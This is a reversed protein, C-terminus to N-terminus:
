ADSHCFIGSTNEALLVNVSYILVDFKNKDSIFNNEIKMVLFLTKSQKTSSKFM